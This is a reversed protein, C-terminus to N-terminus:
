VYWITTNHQADHKMVAMSGARAGIITDVTIEKSAQQQEEDTLTFLIMPLSEFIVHLKRGTSGIAAIVGYWTTFWGSWIIFDGIDPTYQALPM